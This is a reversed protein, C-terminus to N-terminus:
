SAFREPSQAFTGGPARAIAARRTELMRPEFWTGPYAREYFDLVEDLDEPGLAAAGHGYGQLRAPDVLGLKHHAVPPSAPVLGPGLSAVLEPTLHAYTSSPLEDEIARLLRAMDATPAEALALLVPPDPEDYVLV